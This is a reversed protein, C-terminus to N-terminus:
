DSDCWMLLREKLEDILEEIKPPDFPAEIDSLLAGGNPPQNDHTPEGDRARRTLAVVHIDDRGASKAAIRGAGVSLANLSQGANQTAPTLAALLFACILHGPYTSFVLHVKSGLNWPTAHSRKRGGM